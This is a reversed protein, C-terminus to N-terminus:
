FVKGRLLTKFSELMTENPDFLVAFKGKNDNAIFFYINDSNNSSYDYKRSVNKLENNHANDSLKAMVDIKSLQVNRIEKRKAKNIIKAFRIENEVFTYEYELIFSIFLKYALYFLGISILIAFFALSGLARILIFLYCALAMPLVTYFFRKVQEANSLKRTVSYEIYKEM